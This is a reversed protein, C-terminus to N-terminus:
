LRSCNWVSTKMKVIQSHLRGTETLQNLSEHSMGGEAEPGDLMTKMKMMGITEGERQHPLDQADGRMATMLRTLDISGGKRRRELWINKECAAESNQWWRLYETADDRGQVDLLNKQVWAM